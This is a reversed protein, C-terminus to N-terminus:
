RAAVLTGIRSDGNMGAADDKHRSIGAWHLNEDDLILL